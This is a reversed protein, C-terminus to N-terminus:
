ISYFLDKHHTLVKCLNGVIYERKTIEKLNQNEVLEAIGKDLANWLGTGEFERYPPEPQNKSQPAM